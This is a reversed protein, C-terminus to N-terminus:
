MLGRENFFSSYQKDSVKIHNLLWDKLFLMVEISLGHKGQDAEKKFESVRRVFDNHERIHELSAPYKYEAFYKEETTFHIKTYDIMDDVIKGVVESGKGQKISDHIENLMEVLKLHQGDIELVNVSFSNDWNIFAMELSRKM